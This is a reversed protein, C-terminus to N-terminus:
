QSDKTGDEDETNIKFLTDFDVREFVELKGGRTANYIKIGHADAYEKAVKYASIMREEPTDIIREGYPAFHQKKESYNCDVGLLYIEKFGMYIAMQIISYTITFGDYINKNCDSSFQFEYITNKLYHNLLDHVYYFTRINKKKIFPIMSGLFITDLEKWPVNKKIKKFVKRDQIFYFSPRWNTKDFSMFISNMSFSYLEGISDLDKMTLSPGTAVIVCRKGAYIDHFISLDWARNRKKIHEIYLYYLGKEFFILKKILNRM